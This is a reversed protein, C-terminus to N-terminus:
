EAVLEHNKEFKRKRYDIYTIEIIHVSHLVKRWLRLREIRHRVDSGSVFSCNLSSYVLLVTFM